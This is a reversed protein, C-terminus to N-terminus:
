NSTKESNFSQIFAQTLFFAYGAQFEPELDVLIIEFTAPRRKCIKLPYNQSWLKHWFISYLVETTYENNGLRQKNGKSFKFKYTPNKEKSFQFFNCFNSLLQFCFALKEFILRYPHSVIICLCMLMFCALSSCTEAFCFPVFCTWSSKRIM